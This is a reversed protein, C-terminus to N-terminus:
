CGYCTVWFCTPYVKTYECEYWCTWPCTPECTNECTEGECTECTVCTVPCTSSCTNPCTDPCTSSCTQSCTSCTPQSTDCQPWCTEGGGNTPALPAAFCRNSVNYNLISGKEATYTFGNMQTPLFNMKSSVQEMRVTYLPTSISSSATVAVAALLVIAVSSVVLLMKSKM